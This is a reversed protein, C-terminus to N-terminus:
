WSSYIAQSICDLGLWSSGGPLVRDYQYTIYYLWFANQIAIVINLKGWFLVFFLLAFSLWEKWHIEKKHALSLSGAIFLFAIGNSIADASVTSAQLIAVPSSALIALVWKGFPIIRVSYWVLLLYSLLGVLRCAYFVTLAPLQLSRGLYRMVLAQPLLLPPAYVSRTEVDGYIYDHADISLKSYKEWFDPEVARIIFPRRYSMEWYVAPFPMENGLKDNPIFTLGSMEWVRILHTEEDYGGGVPMLFCASIGFICLIAILYIEPTHTPLKDRIRGKWNAARALNGIM